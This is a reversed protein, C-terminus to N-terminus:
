IEITNIIKVKDENKPVSTFWFPKIEITAEKISPYRSIAQKVNSKSLGTIESTLLNQDFIWVLQPQGELKFTLNGINEIDFINGSFTFNLEDLNSIKINQDEINPSTVELIERTISARDFIFASATAKKTIIATDGSGSSQTPTSFTYNIGNKYMVFNSPIQEEIESSLALKLEEELIVSAEILDEEVVVKREGIFGGTIETKSRAYIQEYKPGGKFGPVTFDKLDINYSEGARDAEVITDVSGPINKGDKITRAPVTIPNPIRYILGEPTEFRTTAILRQAETTTNFVTITGKAKISVNEKGGAAVEKSLEKNVSVIQFGLTAGVSDKRATFSSDLAVVQSHPTITIVAQKFISSIAFGLIFIAIIVMGYFLKKSPRKIEDEYEYNYSNEKIDSQKSTKIGANLDVEKKISVPRSFDQEDYDNKTSVKSVDNSVVSRKSRNPLEINRISRKSPLVDQVLNKKNPENKM